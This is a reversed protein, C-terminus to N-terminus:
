EFDRPAATGPKPGDWNMFRVNEGVYCLDIDGTAGGRQKAVRLNCYYRWDASLTPKAHIPRFPFMVIDADQEIEGCDRLDSLLPIQDVRKEVERNLQALLMVTIGLEKALKKLNRTVEGLQSTRNARPDTGDMLGLYDIILLRLGHRRKLARAKTRLTNINLSSKDNVFFPLKRIQDAAQTLDAWDQDGLREPRRIKSLHVNSVMSVQRDQLHQRPMELSFMGVTAGIQACYMGITVALATKGMSPRAGIIVLDGPRMGGDLQNDLDRLGTPLFGSGKNELRTNLEDIFETMGEDSGTWEEGPSAELLGALQASVQEVRDGIPMSHDAALDRAKDVVGLLQRSLAREHVIEAYRRVASGNTTSAQSIENLYYLEVRGQLHEFVTLVDIVKCAMAMSAIASYIEGYQEVAFHHAQLIDGVVDFHRADMLLSGLVAQEAEISALPSTISQQEGDLPPFTQPANM